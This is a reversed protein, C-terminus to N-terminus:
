IKLKAAGRRIIKPKEGTLDVITSSQQYLTRGGDIAYDVMKLLKQPIESFDAAARGGSFNASTTALYGGFRQIIKKTISHDALRLALTQNRSNFKRAFKKTTKIIFTVPRPWINKIIKKIKSNIKIPILDLQKKNALMLVL